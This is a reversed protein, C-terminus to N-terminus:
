CRLRLVSFTGSVFDVPDDNLHGEFCVADVEDTVVAFPIGRIGTADGGPEASVAQADVRYDIYRHVDQPASGFFPLYVAVIDYDDRYSGLRRLSQLCPGCTENWFEYVTRPGSVTLLPATGGATEVGLAEVQVADGAHSDALGAANAQVVYGLAALPLAAATAVRRGGWVGVFYAIAGAGALALLVPSGNLQEAFAAFAFTVLLYPWTFLASHGREPVYGALLVIAASVMAARANPGALGTLTLLTFSAIATLALTGVRRASGWWQGWSISATGM